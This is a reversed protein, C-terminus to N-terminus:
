TDKRLKARKKYACLLLSSSLVVSTEVILMFLLSLQSYIISFGLVAICLPMFIFGLISYYSFSLHGLPCQLQLLTLACYSLLGYNTSSFAWLHQRRQQFAISDM